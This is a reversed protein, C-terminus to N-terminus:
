ITQSTGCNWTTGGRVDTADDAVDLDEVVEADLHELGDTQPGGPAIRPTGTTPQPATMTPEKTERTSAHNTTDALTVGHHTAPRPLDTLQTM